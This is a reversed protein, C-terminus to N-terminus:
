IGFMIPIIKFLMPLMLIFITKQICELEANLIELLSVVFIFNNKIMIM